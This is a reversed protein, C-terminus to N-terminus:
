PRKSAGNWFLEVIHAALEEVAPKGEGLSERNGLMLLASFAHSLLMPDGPALEGRQMGERFTNALEEHIGHEAERISHLQEESLFPVAEKMMSEFDTHTRSLKVRALQLMRAKLDGEQMLFAQTRTRIRVFMEIVATTFLEAKNAFYYYVSAKTVGAREAIMNISVPEYGLEMFLQSAADLVTDRMPVGGSKLRPRGPSRRTTDDTSRM